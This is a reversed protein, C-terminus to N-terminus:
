FSFTAGGSNYSGNWADYSQGYEMNDSADSAYSVNNTSFEDFDCGATPFTPLRPEATWTSRLAAPAAPTRVEFFEELTQIRERPTFYSDRPTAYPSYSADSHGDSYYSRPTDVDMMTDSSSDFSALDRPSNRPTIRSPAHKSSKGTKAPVEKRPELSLQSKRKLAIFTEGGPVMPVCFKCPTMQHRMAEGIPMESTAGFCKYKTHYNFNRWRAVPVRQLSQSVWCVEGEQGENDTVSGDAHASEMTNDDWDASPSEVLDSSVRSDYQPVVYAAMDRTPDICSIDM